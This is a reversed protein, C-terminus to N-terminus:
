LPKYCRAVAMSCDARWWFRYFVSLNYPTLAGNQPGSLGSSTAGTPTRPIYSTYSGARQWCPPLFHRNKAALYLDASWLICTHKYDGYLRRLFVRLAGWWFISCVGWVYM